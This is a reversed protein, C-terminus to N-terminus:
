QTSVILSAKVRDIAKMTDSVVSELPQEANVITLDFGLDRQGRVLADLYTQRQRKALAYAIFHRDDYERPKTAGSEILELTRQRIQDVAEVPTEMKIILENTRILPNADGVFYRAFTRAYAEEDPLDFLIVAQMSMGRAVALNQEYITELYPNKEDLARHPIRVGPM